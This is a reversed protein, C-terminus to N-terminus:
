AARAANAKALETLAFDDRYDRGDVEFSVVARDFPPPVIMEVIGTGLHDMHRATVIDGETLPRDTM